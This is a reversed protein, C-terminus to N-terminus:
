SSASLFSRREALDATAMSSEGDPTAEPACGAEGHNGDTVAVGEAAPDSIRKRKLIRATCPRSSWRFSQGDVREM